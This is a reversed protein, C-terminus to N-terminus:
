YHSLVEEFASKLKDSAVTTTCQKATQYGVRGMEEALSPTELVMRLKEYLEEHSTSEHTLGNVGEIILESVGAGRSVVVPKMYQWAEVVTLGFGEMKSPLLVVDARMYLAKLDEDSVYGLFKVSDEVGLEGILENLRRRWVEGKSHGLGNSTFSGNGVLILKAKEMRKKLLAHAKIAVDQGKIVDMRAVVLEVKDDEGIGYKDMAEQFKSNSVRAWKNPDIYPYIQFARGRYGARILAELDRRTSVIVADYSEMSKLIFTRLRDSIENVNLPIHWRFVTPASPGIMSGVQLQQFDHIWLLDVDPLLKLMKHACLWNYYAYAEYENVDVDMKGLGHVEKWINEKFNTYRRVLHSPLQINYIHIGEFIVEPPANPNLSVWKVSGVYGERMFEKVVASVAATVGGPSPQYDVDRELYSVDIPYKLEGYKELLEEYSLKFRILPTQTNVCLGLGRM